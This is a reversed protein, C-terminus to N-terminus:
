KNVSYKEFYANYNVRAKDIIIKLTEENLPMEQFNIEIDPEIWKDDFASGSPLIFFGTACQFTLKSNPMKYVNARSYSSAPEKTQSGVIIGRRTSKIVSSLNVAASATEYGQILFLYGSFINNVNSQREYLVFGQHKGKKYKYVCSLFNYNGDYIHDLLLNVSISSGGGNDKINIFLYKSKKESISNFSNSLFDIYSNDQWLRFTNITLLAISDGFFTLILDKNETKPIFKQKNVSSINKKTVGTVFQVKIQNNSDFFKIEFHEYEKYILYYYYSFNKEIKEIKNSLSVDASFLQMMNKAVNEILHENISIIKNLESNDDIFFLEDNISVVNYPFFLCSDPHPFWEPDYTLSYARQVITHSDFLNNTEFGMVVAFEIPTLPENIQQIIKEEVSKIKEASHFAYPNPHVKKITKFYFKVDKHLKSIPIKDTQGWFTTLVSFM